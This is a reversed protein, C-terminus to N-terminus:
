HIWERPSPSNEKWNQALEFLAAIFIQACTETHAYTKM